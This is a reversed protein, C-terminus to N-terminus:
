KGAIKKVLKVVKSFVFVALTFVIMAFMIQVFISTALATELAALVAIAMAWLGDIIAQADTWVTLSLLFGLLGM